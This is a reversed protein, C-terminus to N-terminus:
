IKPKMARLLLLCAIGGNGFSEPHIRKTKDPVPRLVEPPKFCVFHSNQMISEHTGHTDCVKKYVDEGEKTHAFVLKL